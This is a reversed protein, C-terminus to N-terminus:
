WKGVPPTDSLHPYRQELPTDIRASGNGRIDVVNSPSGASHGAGTQPDSLSADSGSGPIKQGGVAEAAIRSLNERLRDNELRLEDYAARLAANRENASAEAQRAIDRQVKAEHEAAVSRDAGECLRRIQEATDDPPVAGPVRGKDMIAQAAELVALDDASLKHIDIHGQGREGVRAPLLAALREIVGADMESPKVALAHVYAELIRLQEPSFAADGGRSHIISARFEQVTIPQDSM